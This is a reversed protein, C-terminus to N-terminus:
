NLNHTEPYPSCFARKFAYGPEATGMGWGMRNLAETLCANFGTHLGEVRYPEPNVIGALTFYGCAVLLGRSLNYIFYARDQHTHHRQVLNRSYYGNAGVHALRVVREPPTNRPMMRAFTDLWYGLRVQEDEPSSLEHYLAYILSHAARAAAPTIPLNKM